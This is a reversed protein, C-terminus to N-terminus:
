EGESMPPAAVERLEPHGQNEGDKSKLRGYQYM